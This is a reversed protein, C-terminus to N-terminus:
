AIVLERGFVRAFAEGDGYREVSWRPLAVSEEHGDVHLGVGEGDASLEVQSVAQDHGRELHEALRVIVACRSVLEKDGPRTLSALEGLRPIGKRHFRAIRAILARERPDFGPLEAALILYESHKHHDDYDVSVGVDHLMAAAWLLEREGPRPHIVEQEGLSDFMQMSLRAVHEVHAMDSEYQVALNIVAARRVDEFLPSRGSEGDFLARAFFVGERLGAETVEIGQFGGLDVVAEIVLAAALVIDERGPKIGYVTRRKRVPLAALTGVLEALAKRTMVYGQVGLDRFGSAHMAAAALNRVSGGLGVLRNELNGAGVGPSGGNQTAGVGARLWELRALTDRTRARVAKLESARAPARGPLLEETLTVAGLAFSPREYAQRAAVRILQLSGGGLELVIGDRLTSTNAAAVYGLWAEEDESLVDIRLGSRAQAVRLFQEKNAAERIASTAVAHVDERGLGNARCFRAFVSLTELGRAIAKVSLRGSAALGAGIRVDEYLEDTRKWWRGGRGYSFVVLRWSNSGLDIVAVRRAHSTGGAAPGIVGASM